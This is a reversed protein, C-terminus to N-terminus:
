RFLHSIASELHDIPRVAPVELLIVGRANLYNARDNAKVAVKAM